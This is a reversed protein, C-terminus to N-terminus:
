IGGIVALVSVGFKICAYKANAAEIGCVIALFKLDSGLLYEINHEM